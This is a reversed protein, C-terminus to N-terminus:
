PPALEKSVSVNGLMRTLFQILLQLEQDTFDHLHRQLEEHVVVPIEAAVARGKDTLALNVVRRDTDSRQRQLLQKQELRPNGSCQRSNWRSCARMSM